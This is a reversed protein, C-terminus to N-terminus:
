RLFNFKYILGVGIFHNYFHCGGQHFKYEMTIEANCFIPFALGAMLQWAFHNWKQDFIIRDNSSHMHQFDYGIGAGIFPQINGFTCGWLSLPLNWLLNAMYSSTQFYGHRSSGQGFFHIRRIANKRFAYEGELRLNYHWCYGLSGAIMYGTQYTSKNGDITINQLFNIDTLVKAYFNTEDVYCSNETCWGQAQVDATMFFLLSMLLFLINKKMNVMEKQNNM